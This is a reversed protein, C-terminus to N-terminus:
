WISSMRSVFFFRGFIMESSKTMQSFACPVRTSIGSFPLYTPPFCDIESYRFAVAITLGCARIVYL